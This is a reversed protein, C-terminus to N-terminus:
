GETKREHNGAAQVRQERWLRLGRLRVACLGRELAFTGLDVVVRADRAVALVELTDLSAALAQDTDALRGDVELGRGAPHRHRALFCLGGTLGLPQRRRLDVRHGGVD